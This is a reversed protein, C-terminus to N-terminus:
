NLLFVTKPRIENSVSSLFVFRIKISLIYLHVLFPIKFMVTDLQM